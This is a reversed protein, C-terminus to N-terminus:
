LIFDSYASVSPFHNQLFDSSVTYHVLFVTHVFVLLLVEGVFSIVRIRINEARFLLKWGGTVM